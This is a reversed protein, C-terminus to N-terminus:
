TTARQNSTPQDTPQEDEDQGCLTNYNCWTLVSGHNTTEITAIEAKKLVLTCTRTAQRSVGCRQALAAAGFVAQGRKLYIGDIWGDVRRTRMLLESCIAWAKPRMSPRFLDMLKLFELHNIPSFPM